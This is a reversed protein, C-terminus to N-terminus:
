KQKNQSIIIGISLYIGDTPNCKGNIRYTFRHIDSIHMPKKRDKKTDGSFCSVAALQRPTSAIASAMLQM